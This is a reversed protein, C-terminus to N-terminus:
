SRPPVDVRQGLLRASGSATQSPMGASTSRPLGGRADDGDVALKPATLIHGCGNHILSQHGDGNVMGAIGEHGVLEFLGAVDFVGDDFWIAAAATRPAAISRRDTPPWWSRLHRMTKSYAHARGELAALRDDDITSM